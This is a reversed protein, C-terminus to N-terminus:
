RGENVSAFEGNREDIDGVGIARAVGADVVVHHHVRGAQGLDDGDHGAKFADAFAGEV